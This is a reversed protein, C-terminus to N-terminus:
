WFGTGPLAQGVAVHVSAVGGGMWCSLNNDELLSSMQGKRSIYKLLRQRCYFFLHTGKEELM